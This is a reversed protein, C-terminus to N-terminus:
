TDSGGLILNLKLKTGQVRIGIIYLIPHGGSVIYLPSWKHLVRKHLVRSLFFLKGLGLRHACM